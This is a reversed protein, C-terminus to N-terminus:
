GEANLLKVIREAFFVKAATAVIEGGQRRDVINYSNEHTHETSFTTMEYDYRPLKKDKTM